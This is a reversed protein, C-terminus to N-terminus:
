PDIRIYSNNVPDLTPSPHVVGFCFGRARLDDIIGPTAAVSNAVLDHLIIIAGTRAGNVARQRITAASLGPEDADGPSVAFLTKTLGLNKAISDVRSDTDSYPPRWLVPRAVGLGAVRDSLGSLEQRVQTSTLQTLHPHTYTHNGVVHGEAAERRVVSERATLIQDGVLFFTARVGKAALADLLAATDPGPGDDYTLAVRGQSCTGTVTVAIGYDDTVVNGVAYIALGFSVATVGAPIPPLNQTAQRYTASAPQQIGDFWYEWGTSRQLYIVPSVPVTSHYWASVTYSEGAVATPACGPAMTPVLKRDGDIYSTIAVKEGWAGSHADAVRTFTATNTGFGGTTFCDPVGDGGADAELSPNAIPGPAAAARPVGILTTLVTATILAVIKARPRARRDRRRTTNMTIEGAPRCSAPM